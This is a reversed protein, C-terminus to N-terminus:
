LLPARPRPETCHRRGLSPKQEWPFLQADRVEELGLGTGGAVAAPQVVALLRESGLNSYLQELGNVWPRPARSCSLAGVHPLPGPLAPPWCM